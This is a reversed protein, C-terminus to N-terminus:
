EVITFTTSIPFRKEGKDNIIYFGIESVEVVEYIKDKTVHDVLKESWKAKMKNGVALEKRGAGNNMACTVLYFVLDGSSIGEDVKKSLNAKAQKYIEEGKEEKVLNLMNEIGEEDLRYTKGSLFRECHNITM